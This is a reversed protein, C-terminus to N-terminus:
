NLLSCCKFMAIYLSAKRTCTACYPQIRLLNTAYIVEKRSCGTIAAELAEFLENLVDMQM